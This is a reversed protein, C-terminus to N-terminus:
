TAVGSLFFLTRAVIEGTLVLAAMIYLLGTASDLSRIRATRWAMIAVAPAVVLGFVVRVAFFLGYEGLLAPAHAAGPLLLLLPLLLLQAVMAGLSLLVLRILPRTSLGPTVLYWHGLSLGTVASGLAVAGALVAFPVGLGVLQPGPDVLAASWLAGLGALPVIPGLLGAAALRRAQLAVLYSALLVIFAITLTREATFWLGAEARLFVTLPPPFSTRLWLALAATALLCYGTFLAFGRGVEGRLHVLFLAIAGGVAAELFVLYASLPLAQM